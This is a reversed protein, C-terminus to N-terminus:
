PIFYFGAGLIAYVGLLLAGELWNTEGDQCIQSAMLVSFSVAVVEMPTFDLDMLGGKANPGILRGLIVLVPAAFLAIQKSSEMAISFSLNMRDKLAMWVATSHEAANGVIAVIVVGVFTETLGMSSIAADLGHLLVEAMVGVGITAAVLVGLSFRVSWLPGAEHGSGEEHFLHKHTKLNFLLSAAYLILLIVSIALSLDKEVHPLREPPIFIHFLAPLALAFVSILLMSSAASVAAINVSQGKRRLGGLFVALGLVFLINGIISGTISAKVLTINGAKL